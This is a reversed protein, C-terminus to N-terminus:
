KPKSVGNQPVSRPMRLLQDLTSTNNAKKLNALRCSGNRSTGLETHRVSALSVCNWFSEVVQM